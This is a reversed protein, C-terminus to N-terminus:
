PSHIHIYEPGAPVRYQARGIPCGLLDSTCHPTHCQQRPCHQMPFAVNPIPPTSFQQTPAMQQPQQMMLMAALQNTFATQNMAIQNFAPAIMASIALSLDPHTNSVAYTNGLTSGTTAAAAITAVTIAGTSDKTADDDDLVNYMNLQAPMAAYGMQGSTNRLEM